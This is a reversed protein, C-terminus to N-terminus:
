GQSDVQPSGGVPRRSPAMTWSLRRGPYQRLRTALPQASWRGGLTLKGRAFASPDPGMRERPGEFPSGSPDPAEKVTGFAEQLPKLPRRRRGNPTGRPEFAWERPLNAMGSRTSTWGKQFQAQALADPLERDTLVARRGAPLSGPHTRSALGGARSAREGSLSPRELSM